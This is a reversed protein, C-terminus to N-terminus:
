QGLKSLSHVINLTNFHFISLLDKFDGFRQCREASLKWDSVHFNHITVIIEKDTPSGKEQIFRVKGRIIKFLTM